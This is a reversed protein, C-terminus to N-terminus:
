SKKESKERAWAEWDADDNSFNVRYRALQARVYAENTDAPTPASPEVADGQGVEEVEGRLRSVESYLVWLGYTIVVQFVLLVGIAVYLM